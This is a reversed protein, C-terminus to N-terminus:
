KKIQTLETQYKLNIVPALIIQFKTKYKPDINSNVPQEFLNNWNNEIM